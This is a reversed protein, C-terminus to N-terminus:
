NLGQDRRNSFSKDVGIYDLVACSVFSLFARVNFYRYSVAYLSMEEYCSIFGDVTKDISFEFSKEKCAVSENEWVKSNSVVELLIDSLFFTKKEPVYEHYSFGAANSFFGYTIPEKCSEIGIISPIGYSAAEIIATGSGIFVLCDKLVAPIESYEIVGKFFVAGQINLERSLQKLRQMESGEGYIEYILQKNEKLLGPMCKIVHENYTKFNYLQGISVIRNSSSSGISAQNVNISIGVPLISSDSYDTNFFKSYNSVSNENFFIISKKELSKFAKQAYKSFYFSPASYMFENQHYIGVSLKAKYDKKRFFCSSFIRIFFLLGFVGMVHVHKYKCIQTYICALRLPLFIGLQARYLFRLPPYSFGSLWYIDAYKKLEKIIEPDNKNFLVLVGPRTGKKSLERCIRILFTSGGNMPLANVVFLM